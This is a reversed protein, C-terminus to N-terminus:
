TIMAIICCTCRGFPKAAMTSAISGTNCFTGSSLESWSPSCAAAVGAAVVPMFASVVFINIFGYSLNLAYHRRPVPQWGCRHDPVDRGDARVRRRARYRLVVSPAMPNRHRSASLPSQGSLGRMTARGDLAVRAQDDALVADSVVVEGSRCQHELRAATNVTSGFYDLVGGATKLVVNADSRARNFKAM